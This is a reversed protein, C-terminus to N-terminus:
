ISKNTRESNNHSHYLVVILYFGTTEHGSADLLMSMEGFMEGAKMERVVKPGEPTDVEVRM